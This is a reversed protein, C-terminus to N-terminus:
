GAKGGPAQASDKVEVRAGPALRLQGDTVVREGASVGKEVITEGGARLGKVIERLEATDDPKAVFVSPGTQGAQIAENPIVVARPIRTLRLVVDVFQGPWLRRDQNPFTAKLNITGTSPDVTNDIFTLSGALPTNEGRASASAELPHGAQQAEQHYRRIRPLEQEPVAFTVYIPALRNIVVLPAPDDAKVVNGRRVLLDGTRGDIPSRITCYNLQVTAAELAARDAKVTAELAKAKDRAHLFGEESIAAARRLKEYRAQDTKADELNVEDRALNAKAQNLAAEFPDRDIAFLVDGAKVEEGEEFGVSKIEGSVRAKVQVTEKPEVRGIASLEVWVPKEVAIAVTVPVAQSAPNQAAKDEAACGGLWLVCASALGLLLGLTQARQSVPLASSRGGPPGSWTCACQM